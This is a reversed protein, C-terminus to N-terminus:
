EVVKVFSRRMCGTSNVSEKFYILSWAPELPLPNQTDVSVGYDYFRFGKNAAWEISHAVLYNVALLNRYEYLHMTYFNLVCNKNTHFLLEGAILTTERYALFLTLQGPLLTNLHILEECTHAPKINFKAKNKLLIPYFAKFNNEEVIHVNNKKSKNIKYITARSFDDKSKFNNLDIVSSYLPTTEKFGNYRLAYEMSENIISHYINMPPTLTIKNLGMKKIYNTLSKVLCNAQKLTLTQYFVFGGFSAGMPSIFEKGNIGGPLVAVLSDNEYFMLHHFNFRGEPHYKLFQQLHFMTGNNSGKIFTDWVAANDPKYEKVEITM